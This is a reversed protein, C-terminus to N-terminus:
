FECHHYPLEAAAARDLFWYTASLGHVLGAPIRDDHNIGRAAAAAKSPGAAMLWVEDSRNITSLTVSIREAPPLPAESVGIVRMGKEAQSRMSPHGPYISAVHGDVGLGLLCIDFDVEGLDKAYAWAAESPDTTGKTSPMPHVQASVLQITRALIALAQTSNRNLDTTPVYRESTWWLELKSPDLQVAPALGALAEFVAHATTGGPLAIHVRDKIAQLEVIRRALRGAMGTALEGLDRYRHIRQLAM